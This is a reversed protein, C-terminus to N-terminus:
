ECTMLYLTFQGSSKGAILLFLLFESKTKIFFFHMLWMKTASWIFAMYKFLDFTHQMKM